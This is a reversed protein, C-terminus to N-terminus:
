SAWGIQQHSMRAQVNRDEESSVNSADASDEMARIVLCTCTSRLQCPRDVKPSCLNSRWTWKKGQDVKQGPRIKAHCTKNAAVPRNEKFDTM